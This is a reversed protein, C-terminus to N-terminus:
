MNLTKRLKGSVLKDFNEGASTFQPVDDAKEKSYIGLVLGQSLLFLFISLASGKSPRRDAFELLVCNWGFWTGTM